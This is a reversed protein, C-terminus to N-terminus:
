AETSPDARSSAHKIPDHGWIQSATTAAAAGTDPRGTRLTGRRTIEVREFAVATGLLGGAVVLPVAPLVYRREFHSLVSGLLVALGMGLLLAIAPRRVEGRPALATRKLGLGAIGLLCLAALLPRVTHVVASYARLVSAPPRQRPRYFPWLWPGPKPLTIPGDETPKDSRAGPVFFRLLDGGVRGAYRLPRQSMVRLSYDFLTRDVRAPAHISHSGFARV